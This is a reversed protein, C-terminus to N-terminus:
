GTVVKGLKSLPEYAKQDEKMNVSPSHFGYANCFFFHFAFNGQMIFDRTGNIKEVRKELRDYKTGRVDNYISGM